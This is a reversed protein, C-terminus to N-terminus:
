GDVTENRSRITFEWHDTARSPGFAQTPPRAFDWWEGRFEVRNWSGPLAERTMIRLVKVSLQGVVEADSQRDTVATVKITKPNDPDWTILPERRGNVVKKEPYIVLTERGRDLIISHIM